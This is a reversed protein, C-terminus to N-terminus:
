IVKVSIGLKDHAGVKLYSTFHTKKAELYNIAKLWLSNFKEPSIPQNITNWDVTNETIKDIVIFRDKPSRGSRSGTKVVLAQNSALEGEGRALAADVLEKVSLNVRSRSIAQMNFVENASQAMITAEM